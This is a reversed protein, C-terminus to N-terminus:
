DKSEITQLQCKMSKIKLKYARNTQTVASIQTGIKTIEVWALSDYSLKNGRTDWHWSGYCRVKGSTRLVESVQAPCVVNATSYNHTIDGLRTSWEGDLNFFTFDEGKCELRQFSAAVAGQAIALILLVFKLKM